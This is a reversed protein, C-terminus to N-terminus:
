VFVCNLRRYSACLRHIILDIDLINIVYLKECVGTSSYTLDVHETNHERQTHNVHSTVHPCNHADTDSSVASARPNKGAHVM